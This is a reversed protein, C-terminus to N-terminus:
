LLPGVVVSGPYMSQQEPWQVCFLDSLPRCLRATLSRNDIRDYVEIYVTRIGAKRGLAFYPYAVAAGTSVIVDPRQDKIVRRAQATNRLLNPVNRTTPHHAWTVEEAVLQSVADVTDFTVWHRDERRWLPAIAL